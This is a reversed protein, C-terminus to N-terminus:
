PNQSNLLLNGPLSIIYMGISCSAFGPHALQKVVQTGAASLLMAVSNLLTSTTHILDVAAVLLATSHVEILIEQAELLKDVFSGPAPSKSRAREGRAATGKIKRGPSLRAVSLRDGVSKDSKGKGALAIAPFSITSEQLVSYIRHDTMQEISQLLLQKASAVGQDVHDTQSNSLKESEQLIGLADGFKKSIMLSRAKRRLVAGRLSMLQPCEVTMPAKEPVASKARPALKCKVPAKSRAVTKRPATKPQVLTLKSMEAELVETPDVLNDLGDIFDPMTLQGLITEADLYAANAADHDELVDSMCGLRYALIAAERSKPQSSCSEKAMMLYESGKEVMGARMCISGLSASGIAMHFESGAEKVLQHAQEAYYLTEQFMGHHAYLESLHFLGQFLPTVLPWFSSGCTPQSKMVETSIDVQSLALQSVEEALIEAESSTSSTSQSFQGYSHETTAWARRLLRVSTKAHTLAAHPAGRELALM